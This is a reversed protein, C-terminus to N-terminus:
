QKIEVTEENSGCKTCLIQLKSKLPVDDNGEYLVVFEHCSCERCIMLHRNDQM